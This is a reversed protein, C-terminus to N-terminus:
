ASSDRATGLSDPLLRVMAGRRFSWAFLLLYMRWMWRFPCLRLLRGRRGAATGGARLIEPSVECRVQQVYPRLRALTHLLGWPNIIKSLQVVSRGHRSQCEVRCSGLTLVIVAGGGAGNPSVARSSGLKLPGVTGGVGAVGVTTPESSSPSLSSSSLFSFPLLLLDLSAPPGLVDATGAVVRAGLSAAVSLSPSATSAAGSGVPGGGGSSELAWRMPRTDRPVATMHM